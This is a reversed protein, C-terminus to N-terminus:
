SNSSEERIDNNVVLKLHSKNTGESHGEKEVRDASEESRIAHNEIFQNAFGLSDSVGFICDVPLEIRFPEGSFTVNWSVMREVFDFEPECYPSNMVFMIKGQKNYQERIFDPVVMNKDMACYFELRQMPDLKFYSVIGHMIHDKLDSIM